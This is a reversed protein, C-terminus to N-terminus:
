FCWDSYIDTLMGKKYKSENLYLQRIRSCSETLIDKICNKEIFNYSNAKEASALWSSIRDRLKVIDKEEKLIKKISKKSSDRLKKHTPWIKYGVGNICHNIPFFTTKNKNLSLHLREEVFKSAVDIIIRAKEKNEVQIFIDDMYRVYYKLGFTRKLYQDLENLYLNSSLQSITNGLPIGIDSINDSSDIIKDLLRLIKENKIYKRFITKLIARDISYFFKKIDLKVNQANNGWKRKACRMNYQIKDVARHTSKYDISGYSDPIFVPYIVRKLINNLAIQVIKDRHAPAYIEREKPEYITFKSYPSVQYTEDDLEQMLEYINFVYNSNFEQAEKTKRNKSKNVKKYAAFFNDERLFLNWLDLNEKEEIYM